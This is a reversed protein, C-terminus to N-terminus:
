QSMANSIRINVRYMHIYAYSFPQLIQPNKPLFVLTLIIGFNVELTCYFRGSSYRAAKKVKQRLEREVQKEIKSGEM